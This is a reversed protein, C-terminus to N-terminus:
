KGGRYGKGIGEKNNNTGPMNGNATGTCDGTCNVSGKSGQTNGGKQANTNAGLCNQQKYKSGLGYPSNIILDFSSQDLLYPTYTAGLLTIQRIAAKLHNSSARIMNQLLIKINANQANVFVENYAVINEEEIKAMTSFAEINTTVAVLENYKIQLQQNNFIGVATLQPFEIEYYGLIREIAVIHNAEANAINAFQINAPYQNAFSTYLDKTLKEDERMAFLFEIEDATLPNTADLIPCINNLAFTTIGEAGSKTSIELLSLPSNNGNPLDNSKNCSTFFTFSSVLTVLLLKSIKM